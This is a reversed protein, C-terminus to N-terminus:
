IAGRFIRLHRYYALFARVDERGEDTLAFDDSCWDEVLECGRAFSPERKEVLKGVNPQQESM